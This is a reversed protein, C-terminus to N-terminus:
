ILVIYPKHVVLVNISLFLYLLIGTYFIEYFITQDKAVKLIKRECFNRLQKVVEDFPNDVTSYEPNAVIFDQNFVIKKIKMLKMLGLVMEIKNTRTTITGPLDYKTQSGKNNDNNMFLCNDANRERM